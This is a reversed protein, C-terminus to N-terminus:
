ESNSLNKNCNHHFKVIQKFFDYYFVANIKIKNEIIINTKINQKLISILQKLIKNLM